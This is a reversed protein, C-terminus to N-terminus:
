DKYITYYNLQKNWAPRYQYNQVNSRFVQIEDELFAYIAFSDDDLVKQLEKYAADRKTDDAITTVEDLLKDVKPNSYGFYSWHKSGTRLMPFLGSYPSPTPAFITYISMDPRTAPNGHREVISAWPLGELEAKIGIEALSAQLILVTNKEHIWPQLYMIKLTVDGPKIGADAMIQQAKKLNYEPKPLASNHSNLSPPVPGWMKSAFGSMAQAVVADYDLTYKMAERLKPNKLPGNTTNMAIYFPSPSPSRSIKIAKNTALTVADDRTISDAYDCDGKEILLRQTAPEAVVRLEFTDVHKGSWGRWYDPFRQLVIKQGIVWERLMYPGSGAEHEAFWAKGLDGGTAKEQVAKASPIFIRTLGFAFEPSPGSLNIVLTNADPTEMSKVPALFYSEGQGIDIARQLGAKAVEATLTSGDHFKVGQRITLTLKTADANFKWETALSPVLKFGGDEYALLAEYQATQQEAEPNSSGIHPDINKPQNNVCMIFTSAAAAPTPPVATPAVPAKTPDAPKPPAQTPAPTPTGGCASLLLSVVVVLVLVQLLRKSM